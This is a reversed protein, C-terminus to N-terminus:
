ELSGLYNFTPLKSVRGTGSLRDALVQMDQQSTSLHCLDVVVYDLGMDRLEGMYPLLSFPRCPVTKVLGEHKRITFSEGKPSTLVRDYQFHRAAVRATFLSPAGYVTFGKRIQLHNARSGMSINALLTRDAEISLQAAEAGLHQVAALAQNNMINLTYDCSLHVREGRFMWAQSIHGLQFSKFGSRMLVTIQKQVLSLESEFLIPSLCWIINRIGSGMFRKIQGLQSVTSKDVPVLFRDPTFPLREQLLKLSDSKLWWELPLKIRSPGVKRQLLRPRGDGKGKQGSPTPSLSLSERKEETLCVDKRIGAIRGRQAEQIGVIRSKM